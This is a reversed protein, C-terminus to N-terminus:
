ICGVPELSQSFDVCDGVVSDVEVDVVQGAPDVYSKGLFEFADFPDQVKCCLRVHVVAHLIRAADYEVVKLGREGQQFKSAAAHWPQLSEQVKACVFNITGRQGLVVCEIFAAPM